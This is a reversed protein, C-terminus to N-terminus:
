HPRSYWLWTADLGQVMDVNSTWEFIERAKAPSLVSERVDNPRADEYRARGGFNAPIRLYNLLQVITTPEGTSINFTGRDDTSIAAADSGAERFMIDGGVTWTIAEVVDAVFIFDRTQEGDGYIVPARGNLLAECFCTVVGGEGEATQRPGYVNSFRLLAYDIDTGDLEERILREGELKTRGYVNDPNLPMAETLPLAEPDGYVAASSAFVLREINSEKAAQIVRRTGEVNVKETFEPQEEGITISSQAALHVIVDPDYERSAVLFEDDLIDLRRFGSRPDVNQPLGTSLDDIVMVDGELALLYHALNSGIFGAGGTILIKM